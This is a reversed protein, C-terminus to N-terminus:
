EWDSDGDHDDADDKSSSKGEGAASVNGSSVLDYSEESSEHASGEAPTRARSPSASLKAASDSPETVTSQDSEVTKSLPTTAADQVPPPAVEEEDDEWSFDEESETTGAPLLRLLRFSASRYSLSVRSSLKGSPKKM